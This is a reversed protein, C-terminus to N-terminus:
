NEEIQGSEKMRELVAKAADFLRSYIQMQDKVTLNTTEFVSITNVFSEFELGTIMIETDPKWTLKGQSESM